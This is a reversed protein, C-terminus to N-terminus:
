GANARAFDRNADTRQGRGRRTRATRHSNTAARLNPQLMTATLPVRSSGGVLFIGALTAPAVDAQRLVSRVTNV